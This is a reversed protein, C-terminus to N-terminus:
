KPSRSEDFILELSTGGPTSMPSGTRGETGSRRYRRQSHSRSHSSAHLAICPRMGLGASLACWFPALSIEHDLPRPRVSTTQHSIPRLATLSAPEHLPGRDVESTPTMFLLSSAPRAPHCGAESSCTAASTPASLVSSVLQGLTPPSM